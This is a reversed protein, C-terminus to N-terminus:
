FLAALRCSHSLKTTATGIKALQYKLMAAVMTNNEPIAYTMNKGIFQTEDYHTVVALNRIMFVFAVFAIPVVVEVISGFWSRKFLIWNKTALARFQSM